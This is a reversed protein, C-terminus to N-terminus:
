QEYLKYNLMNLFDDVNLTEPRADPNIDLMRLEYKSFLGAFTKSLIKRPQAFSIQVLKKIGEKQEDNHLRPRPILRVFASRVKPPPSFAQPGVEFLLQTRVFCATIVSLKSYDSDGPGAELRRAVELQLMFHLDQIRAIADFLKFLLPTSINYPLNGVVRYDTDPKFADFDFKLVDQRHLHLAKGFKQKLGDCLKRDIEVAEVVDTYALLAETVAGNGPGIEILTDSPKPRVAKIIQNIVVSDNLFHQGFRRKPRIKTPAM